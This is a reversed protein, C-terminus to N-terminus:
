RGLAHSKLAGASAREQRDWNDDFDDSRTRKPEKTPAIRPAQTVPRGRAAAALKAANSTAASAAAAATTATNANQSAYRKMVGLFSGDIVRAGHGAQREEPTSPRSYRPLMEALDKRDEATLGTIKHDKEYLAVTDPALQELPVEAPPPAAIVKPFQERMTLATERAFREADEKLDAFGKQNPLVYQAGVEGYEGKADTFITYLKAFNSPDKVIADIANSYVLNRAHMQGAHLRWAVAADLGGVVQEKGDAGKTRWEIARELTSYREHTQKDKEFLHDRESFVKQVRELADPDIIAGGDKLVTIGDYTRAHGDVTYDLPRSGDLPDTDATPQISTDPVLPADAEVPPAGAPESAATGESAAPTDPTTSPPAGEPSEQEVDSYDGYMEGIVSALSPSNDVPAAVAGANEAM